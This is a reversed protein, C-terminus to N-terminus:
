NMTTRSYRSLPYEPDFQVLVGSWPIRIALGYPQAGAVIVIEEGRANRFAIGSEAVVDQEDIALKDIALVAGFTEPVDVNLENGYRDNSKTFELIGLEIRKAVHHMTSHIHTAIAHRHGLRVAVPRQIVDLQIALHDFPQFLNELLSGRERWVFPIKTM